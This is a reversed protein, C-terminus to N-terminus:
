TAKAFVLSGGAMAGGGCAWGIGLTWAITKDDKPASWAELIDRLKRMLLAWMAAAKAVPGVPPAPQSAGRHTPLVSIESRASYVADLQVNCIYQITIMSTMLIFYSIWGGRAWLHKLVDLSFDEKLGSNISGFAVIGIVGLIVV